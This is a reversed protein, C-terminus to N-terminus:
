IGSSFWISFRFHRDSLLVPSVHFLPFSVFVCIFYQPDCYSSYCITHKLVRYIAMIAQVHNRQCGQGTEEKLSTSSSNSTTHCAAVLSFWFIFSVSESKFGIALRWQQGGSSAAVGGLCWGCLEPGRTRVESWLGLSRFLSTDSESWWFLEM